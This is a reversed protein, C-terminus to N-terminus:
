PRRSRRLGLLSAARKVKYQLDLRQLRKRLARLIPDDAARNVQADRLISDLYSRQLTNTVKISQVREPTLRTPFAAPIKEGVAWFNLMTRICKECEACNEGLNAGAWCVRLHDVVSTNRALWAVRESREFDCGDHVLTMTATSCLPDTLPNSGWPLVLSEYPEDAGKMGKSFGPQLALFCGALQLGHSEEWDQNVARANTKLRILPVGTGALMREGRTAADAFFDERELPFDMGHVLLAAGPTCNHRGAAGTLHRFFTFTGDVGGSFAFLGPRQGPLPAAEAEHDARIDITKYLKPRWRHWVQQFTELGDLLTPSLSGEVRIDANHQMAWMLITVVAHDGQEAPALFQVHEDPVAHFLTFGQDEYGNFTWRLSTWGNTTATPAPSITLIRNNM